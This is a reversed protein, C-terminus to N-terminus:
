FPGSLGGEQVLQSDVPESGLSQADNPMAPHPLHGAHLEEPVLFIIDFFVHFEQLLVLFIRPARSFSQKCEDFRLLAYRLTKVPVM